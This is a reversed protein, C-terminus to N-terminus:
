KTGSELLGSTMPPVVIVRFLVSSTFGLVPTGTTGFQAVGVDNRQM